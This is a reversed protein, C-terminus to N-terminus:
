PRVMNFQNNPLVILANGEFGMLTENDVKYLKVKKNKIIYTGGNSKPNNIVSVFEM